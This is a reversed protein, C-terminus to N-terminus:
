ADADDRVAPHAPAGTESDPPEGRIPNPTEGPRCAASQTEERIEPFAAAIVDLDSIQEGALLRGVLARKVFSGGGFCTSGPPPVSIGLLNQWSQDIEALRHPHPFSGGALYERIVLLLRALVGVQVVLSQLAAWRYLNEVGRMQKMDDWRRVKDSDAAHVVEAYLWCDLAEGPLIAFYEPSNPMFYGFHLPIYDWSAFASHWVGKLRKLYEVIHLARAQYALTSTLSRVDSFFYPDKQLSFKRVRTAFGRLIDPDPFAAVSDFLGDGDIDIFAVIRVQHLAGTRLLSASMLDEGERVFSRLTLTTKSMSVAYRLSPVAQLPDGPSAEAASRQEVLLARGNM